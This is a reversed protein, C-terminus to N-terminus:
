NKTFYYLQPGDKQGFEAVAIQDKGCYPGTASVTQEYAKGPSSLRYNSTVNCGDTHIVISLTNPESGKVYSIPASHLRTMKQVDIQNYFPHTPSVFIQSTTEKAGYFSYSAYYLRDSSAAQQAVDESCRSIEVSGGNLSCSDIMFNWNSNRSWKQQESEACALLLISLFTLFIPRLFNEM